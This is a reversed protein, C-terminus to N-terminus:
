FLKKKLHFFSIFDHQFSSFLLIVQPLDNSECRTVVFQVLLPLYESPCKELRTIIKERVQSRLENSLPLNTLADIVVHTLM